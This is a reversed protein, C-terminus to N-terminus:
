CFRSSNESLGHHFNVPSSEKYILKQNLLSTPLLRIVDMQKSHLNIKVVSITFNFYISLVERSRYRMNM